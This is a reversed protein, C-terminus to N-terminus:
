SNKKKDSQTPAEDALNLTAFAGFAGLVTLALRSGALLADAGRLKIGGHGGGAAKRRGPREILRVVGAKDHAVVGPLREAIEIELIFLM